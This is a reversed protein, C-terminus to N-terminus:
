TNLWVEYCKLAWQPLEQIYINPAKPTFPDSDENPEIWGKTDYWQLANIDNPIDCNTLDLNEKQIGDVYVSNDIPIITLRM